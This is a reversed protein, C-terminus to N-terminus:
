WTVPLAHVGYVAMKSRFSVQDPPVALRLGPFRRFLAPYAIRMEIRALQQGLCQHIGHGFTVHGLADRTIDLTGPDGFRAPDRNASALSLAVNQGAKIPRGELELDELAARVPGVHVITLFRLLEEVATDILGPNERLAALQDPHRLLTYTGLALMNATTEHGAILLLVSVGTIEEATLGGGAILGSILGDGPDGSDDHKRVVLDTLYDTLDDLAARVQEPTSDFSLLTRSDRQFRDHDAYPVGLLECIVLSPIPLAFDKVLDAPAGGSEMADLRDVTIKEIRPELQKMRRVTFQGTLLKRFRTHEPPDLRLFFGPLIRRAEQILRRGVPLHLLDARTSFRPDALVARVASHSVALWGAHGDGFVMPRVPDEERWRGFEPPPDLPNERTMPYTVPEPHTM